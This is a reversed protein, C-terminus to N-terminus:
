FNRAKTQLDNGIIRCFFWLVQELRFCISSRKQLVDSGKALKWLDVSVKKRLADSMCLCITIPVNLIGYSLDRPVYKPHGM